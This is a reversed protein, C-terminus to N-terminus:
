KTQFTFHPDNSSGIWGDEADTIISGTFSIADMGTDNGTLTIKNNVSYGKLWNPQWTATIHQSMVTQLQNNSDPAQITFDFEVQVNADTYVFPIMYVPETSVSVRKAKGNEPSQIVGGNPITLTLSPRVGEPRSQHTWSQTSGLFDGTNRFNVIKVNSVKVTYEEGPIESTFTFKLRTLIHKFQLSVPDPTVNDQHAPRKEGLATAYVLDHDCHAQSVTYELLNLFKGNMVAHGTESLDIDENECSYAYFDYTNDPTWYRTTACKWIGDTGKNVRDGFFVQVPQSSTSATYTGYVLFSKFNSNALARSNKNMHTDFGIVTKENKVDDIVESTSCGSLIAVCAASVICNILKM